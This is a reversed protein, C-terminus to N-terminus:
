GPVQLKSILINLNSEFQYDEQRLRELAPIVPIHWSWQSIHHQNSFLSNQADEDLIKGVSGWVWVREGAVFVHLIDACVPM